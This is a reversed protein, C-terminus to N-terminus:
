GSGDSAYEVLLKVSEELGCVATDIVVPPRAWPDFRRACIESWSPLRMGAIDATRESARREHEVRDSCVVEVEVVRVSSRRAVACWAERVQSLGNVADAIVIAGLRLNEEAVAYAVAYGSWGVDGKLVDASRLAQEITDIRVHVARVRRALASAISSKGVAPLGSLVILMPPRLKMSELGLSHDVGAVGRKYVCTPQSM